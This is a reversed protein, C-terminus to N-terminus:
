GADRPNTGGAAWSAAVIRELVAADVADLDKVYLCGKGVTHPGLAALDDVHAEVGDMLYLTLATKRPSFAVPPWDGTRGSAYTYRVSGFGVISPGWMVPPEGTVRQMLDLVRDADRRRREPTVTALFAHPDADTAVTKNEAM